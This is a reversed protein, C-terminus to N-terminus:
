KGSTAALAFSGWNRGRWRFNTGGPPRPTKAASLAYTTTPSTGRWLRREGAVPFRRWLELTWGSFTWRRTWRSHCSRISLGARGSWPNLPVSEPLCLIREGSSKETPIKSIWNNEIVTKSFKWTWFIESWFIWNLQRSPCQFVKGNCIEGRIAIAGEWSRRIKKGRNGNVFIAM